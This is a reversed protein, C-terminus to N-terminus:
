MYNWENSSMNYVNPSTKDTTMPPLAVATVAFQRRVPEQRWPTKPTLAYRSETSSDQTNSEKVSSGSREECILSRPIEPSVDNCKCPNKKWQVNKTIKTILMLTAFIIFAAVRCVRVVSRKHAAFRLFWVNLGM